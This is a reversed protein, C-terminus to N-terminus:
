IARVFVEVRLAKTAASRLRGTLNANDKM